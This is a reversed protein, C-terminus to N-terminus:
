PQVGSLTANGNGTNMLIRKNVQDKCFAGFELTPTASACDPPIVRSTCLQWGLTGDKWEQWCGTDADRKLYTTALSGDLITKQGSPVTLDGGTLTVGTTFTQLASFTNQVEKRVYTYTPAWLPSALFLLAGTIGIVAVLDLTRRM